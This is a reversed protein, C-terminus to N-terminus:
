GQGQGALQRTSPRRILTVALVRLDPNSVRREELAVILALVVILRASATRNDVEPQGFAAM